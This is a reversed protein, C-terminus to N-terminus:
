ARAEDMRRAMRTFKARFAPERGMARVSECDDTDVCRFRYGMLSKILVVDGKRLTRGCVHCPKKKRLGDEVVRWGTPPKWQM